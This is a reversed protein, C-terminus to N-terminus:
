SACSRPWRAGTSTPRAVQPRHDLLRRGARPQDPHRGAGPQGHRLRGARLGPQRVGQHPEEAPRLLRDGGRGAPHPLRARGTRALPVGDPDDRGAPGPVAGHGHRHVRGAHPHHGTLMPEDIHDIDAPTPCSPRTTSTAGRQRRDPLGPLGREPRHRDAVPRVRAGPAGARDGHAAPRPLRLPLRLGLAHSSEPEFTFSADNLRLKELADRLDPSSTATSRTSGASCWPSPTGTATGPGRDRRHQPAHHGDRRLPGRRRGQHRRHPLRGRRTRAARVPVAAPTRM